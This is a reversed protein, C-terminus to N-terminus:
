SQYEKCLLVVVQRERDLYLLSSLSGVPGGGSLVSVISAVMYREREEV